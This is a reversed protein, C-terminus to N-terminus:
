MSFFKKEWQEPGFLQTALHTNFRAIVNSAVWEKAAPLTRKKHKGNDVRGQEPLSSPNLNNPPIWAAYVTKASGASRERLLVALTAKVFHEQHPNDLFGKLFAGQRFVILHDRSCLTLIQDYQCLVQLCALWTSEMATPYVTRKGVQAIMKPMVSTFERHLGPVPLEVSLTNVFNSSYWRSLAAVLTREYGGNSYRRNNNFSCVQTAHIYILSDGYLSQVMANGQVEGRYLGEPQDKMIDIQQESLTHDISRKVLSKELSKEDLPSFLAGQERWAVFLAKRDLATIVASRGKTLERVLALYTKQPEQNHVRMYTPYPKCFRMDQSIRVVAKEYPL